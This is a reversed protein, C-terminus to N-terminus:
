RLKDEVLLRFQNGRDEFNRFQDFSACGPSFLVVCDSKNGSDDITLGRTLEIVSDLVEALTQFRSTSCGALSREIQGADEGYLLVECGVKIIADRLPSFDAGKAQGGLIVILGRGPEFFGEIAAITSGPNTSKSDNIFTVGAKEAVFECRHALGKFRGLTEIIVTPSVGMREAIATAVLANEANHRGRMLIQSCAVIKRTGQCLYVETGDGAIGYDGADPTGSGFNIIETDPGFEFDFDLDKNRLALKANAYIKAKTRYYSADSDYRDLHDPSLNLVTAIECRADEVVELQYSSLELVYVDCDQDLLDLCPTGINGGVGVKMGQAKLMEGLLATVTSKGNSGTIGIVPVRAQKLFINVDGNVGIGATIANQIAQRSLPIGPSVILENVEDPNFVTEDNFLSFLPAPDLDSLDGLLEPEARADMVRFPVGLRSFYRACSLGTKGLGLIVKEAGSARSEPFSSSNASTVDNTEM